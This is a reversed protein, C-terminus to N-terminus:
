TTNGEHNLAHKRADPSLRIRRIRPATQTEDLVRVNMHSAIEAAEDLDRHVIEVDPGGPLTLDVSAVLHRRQWWGQAVTVGIVRKMHAVTIEQRLFLGKWGAAFLETESYGCAKWFPTCWRARRSIPQVDDLAKLVEVGLLGAMLKEAQCRTAVPLITGGNNGVTAASVQVWDRSRWLIPQHLTVSSIRDKQWTHQVKNFLGNQTQFGSEVERVTWGHQAPFKKGTANWASRLWPLVVALSWLHDTALYPWLVLPLGITLKVLMRADLLISVALMRSDVRAVVGEGSDKTSPAEGHLIRLVNDTIREADKKSLYGIEQTADQTAIKVSAVGIVRAWIPRSVDVTRIQDMPFCRHVRHMLGFNFDLQIATLHFSTKLWSALVLASTMAAFAAFIAGMWWYGLYDHLDQIGERQSIGLWILSSILLWAKRIPTIPHLRGSVIVDSM